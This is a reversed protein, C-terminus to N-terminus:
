DLNIKLKAALKHILNATNYYPATGVVCGCSSCQILMIKFNSKKPTNEVMEFQYNDCKPCKSIAM